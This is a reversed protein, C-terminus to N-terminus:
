RRYAAPTCGYKDHFKRYFFSMNEYGVAHAAAGATAGGRLLEAARVLRREQVLQRFTKGVHRKLLATAYNPSLGFEAAMGELSCAAFERDIYGLMGTVLATPGAAGDAAGRVLEREYCDMLEALFLQFLRLVIEPGNPSPDYLECLMEQMYRRVRRSEGCRFRVHGCHDTESNLANFLFRSVASERSLSAELSRRLFARSVTMSLMIDDEGLAAVAHPCAADLLLVENCELVLEEGAVTQPCRGRYVYSIEVYDHVHEPVANFRSNRRMMLGAPMGAQAYQAGIQGIKRVSRGDVEVRETLISWDFPAEDRYRRESASLESLRRELELIEMARGITSETMYQRAKSILVGGDARWFPAM